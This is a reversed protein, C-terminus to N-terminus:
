FGSGIQVLFNENTNSYFFQFYFNQEGEIEIGVKSFTREPLEPMSHLYDLEGILLIFQYLEMKLGFNVFLNDAYINTLLSYTGFLYAQNTIIIFLSAKREDIRALDEEAEVLRGLYGVAIDTRIEDLPLVRLKARMEAYDLDRDPKTILHIDTLLQFDGLQYGYRLNDMRLDPEGIDLIEVSAHFSHSVTQNLATPFDIVGAANMGAAPDIGLAVGSYGFTWFLLWTFIYAKANM